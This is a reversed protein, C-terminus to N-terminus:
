CREYGGTYGVFGGIFTVKDVDRVAPSTVPNKPSEPKSM